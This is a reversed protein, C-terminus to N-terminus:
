NKCLETWRDIQKDSLHYGFNTCVLIVLNESNSVQFVTTEPDM